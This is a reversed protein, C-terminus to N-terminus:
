IQTVGNKSVVITISQQPQLEAIDINDGLDSSVGTLANLQKNQELYDKNTDNVIVGQEAIAAKWDVVVNKLTDKDGVNTATIVHGDSLRGAM